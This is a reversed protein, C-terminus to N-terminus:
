EQLKTNGNSNCQQFHVGGMTLKATYEDADGTDGTCAPKNEHKPDDCAPAAGSPTTITFSLITLALCAIVFSLLKKMALERCAYRHKGLYYEWNARTVDYRKNNRSGGLM